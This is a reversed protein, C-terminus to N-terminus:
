ITKSPIEVKICSGELLTPKSTDKAMDALNAKQKDVAVKCQQETKYVSQSQMFNCTEEICMFVVPIFVIM